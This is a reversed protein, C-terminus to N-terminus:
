GGFSLQKQQLRAQGPTPPTAHLPAQWGVCPLCLSTSGDPLVLSLGSQNWQSRNPLQRYLWPSMVYFDSSGALSCSGVVTSPIISGKTWAPTSQNNGSVHNSKNYMWLYCFFVSKVNRMTLARSVLKMGSTQLNSQCSKKKWLPVKMRFFCFPYRSDGRKLSFLCKWMTLQHIM